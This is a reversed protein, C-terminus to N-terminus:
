IFNGWATHDQHLAAADFWTNVRCERYLDDPHIIAAVVFKMTSVNHQTILTTSSNVEGQLAKKSSASQKFYLETQKKKLFFFFSTSRLVVSPTASASCLHCKWLFNFFFLVVVLLDFMVSASFSNSRLLWFHPFAECVCFLFTHKICAKCVHYPQAPSRWPSSTIICCRFRFLRHPLDHPLLSFLVSHLDRYDWM